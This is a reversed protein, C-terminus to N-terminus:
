SNRRGEGSISVVELQVRGDDLMLMRGPQCSSALTDCQYSVGAPSGQEDSLSSDLILEQGPTIDFSDGKIAGIRIKPGQLDGLIAVHVNWKKAVARINAISEAHADYDGHSFNIRFVSCGNSMMAELTEQSSSAPGITAIIKTRNIISRIPENSM